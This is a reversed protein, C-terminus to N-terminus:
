INIIWSGKQSTGERALIGKKKLQEMYYRINNYNVDVIGAIERQSIRPANSVIEIIQKELVSLEDLMAQTAVQTTAQTTVQTVSNNVDIEEKKAVSEDENNRFFVVGFGYLQKDFEVKCKSKDCADQIRKLGTAFSEM